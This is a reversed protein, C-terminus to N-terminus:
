AALARAIQKRGTVVVVGKEMRITGPTLDIVHGSSTLYRYTISPDYREPRFLRARVTIEQETTTEALRLFEDHPLILALDGPVMRELYQSRLMGDADGEYREKISRVMERFNEQAFFKNLHDALAEPSSFVVERSGVVSMADKDDVKTAWLTLLSFSETPRFKPWVTIRFLNPDVINDRIKADLFPYEEKITEVFDTIVEAFVGGPLPAPPPAPELLAQRASAAFRKKRLDSM